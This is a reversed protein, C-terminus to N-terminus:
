ACNPYARCLFFLNSERICHCQRRFYAWGIVVEMWCYSDITVSYLFGSRAAWANNRIPTIFNSLSKSRSPTKAAKVRIFFSGDVVFMIWSAPSLIPSICVARFSRAEARCFIIWNLLIESTTYWSWAANLNASSFIKFPIRYLREIRFRKLVIETVSKLSHREWSWDKNLFVFTRCRLM